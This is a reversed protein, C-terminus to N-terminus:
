PLVALAAGATADDKPGSVGFITDNKVYFYSLDGNTSKAKIVDKGALNVSSVVDGSAQSAAQFVQSLKGSDAGAFRIAIFTV